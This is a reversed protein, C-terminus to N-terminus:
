AFKRTLFAAQCVYCYLFERCPFYQLM